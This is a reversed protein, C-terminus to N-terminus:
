RGSLDAVVMVAQEAQEAREAQEALACCTGVAAVYLGGRAASRAPLHGAERRGRACQPGEDVGRRDRGRPARM